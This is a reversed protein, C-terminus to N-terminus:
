IDPKLPIIIAAKEEKTKATSENRLSLLHRSCWSLSPIVRLCIISLMPFEKKDIQLIAPSILETTIASPGFAVLLLILAYASMKFNTIRISSTQRASNTSEENGTTKM